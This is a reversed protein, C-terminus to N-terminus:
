AERQLHVRSMEYILNRFQAPDHKISEITKLLVLSFDQEVRHTALYKGKGDQQDDSTM